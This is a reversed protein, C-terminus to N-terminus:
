ENPNQAGAVPEEKWLGAKELKRQLGPLPHGLAYAQRAHKVASEKNGLELEMLGLNYHIERAAGEVAENGQVLVDRAEKVKKQKYLLQALAYYGEENKPQADIAQQAYAIARDPHGLGNEITALNSAIKVYIFSTTPTRQIAYSANDLAYGFLAKRHKPDGELLARSTAAIAACHHHIDEFTDEGLARRWTEVSSRPFANVFQSRGGAGTTVYRAKCYDPWMQWESETPTFNYAVAPAGYLAGVALLLSWVRGNLAM